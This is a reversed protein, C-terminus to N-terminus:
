RAVRVEVPNAGISCSNEGFVSIGGIEKLNIEIPDTMKLQNYQLTLQGMMM